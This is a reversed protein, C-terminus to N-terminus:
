SRSRPRGLRQESGKVRCSSASSTSSRQRLRSTTSSSGVHDIREVTVPAVIAAAPELLGRAVVHQALEVSVREGPGVDTTGVQLSSIPWTVGPTRRSPQSSGWGFFRSSSYTRDTVLDLAAHFLDDAFEPVV